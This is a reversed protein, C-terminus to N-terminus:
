FEKEFPPFSGNQLAMEHAQEDMRSYKSPTMDRWRLEGSLLAERLQGTMKLFSENADLLKEHNIEIIGIVNSDFLACFRQETHRLVSM